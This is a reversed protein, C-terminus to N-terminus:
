LHDKRAYSYTEISDYPPKDKFDKKNMETGNMDFSELKIREFSDLTGHLSVESINHFGMM